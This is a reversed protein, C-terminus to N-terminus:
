GVGSGGWIRSWISTYGDVALECTLLLIYGGILTLAKVFSLRILSLNISHMMKYMTLVYRYIQIILFGVLLTVWHDNAFQAITQLIDAM